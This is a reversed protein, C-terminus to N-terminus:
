WLYKFGHMRVNQKCGVSGSKGKVKFEGLSLVLPIELQTLILSTFSVQFQVTM